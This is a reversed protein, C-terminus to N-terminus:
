VRSIGGGKRRTSSLKGAKVQASVFAHVKDSVSQLNSATTGLEFASLTALTPLVINEGKQQDLVKNVAMEIKESPIENAVKWAEVASKYTAVSANIDIEGRDNLQTYKDM